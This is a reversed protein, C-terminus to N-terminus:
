KSRDSARVHFTFAMGKPPIQGTYVTAVHSGRKVKSLYDYVEDRKESIKIPKVEVLRGLEDEKIVHALVWKNKFKKKLESLKM